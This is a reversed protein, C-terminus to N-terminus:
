SSAILNSLLVNQEKERCPLYNNNLSPNDENNNEKTEDKM